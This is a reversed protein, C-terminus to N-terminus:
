RGKARFPVDIIVASETQIVWRGAAQGHSVFYRSYSPKFCEVSVELKLFSGPNLTFPGVVLDPGMPVGGM